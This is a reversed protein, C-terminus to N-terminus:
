RPCNNITVYKEVHLGLLGTGTIMAMVVFRSTCITSNCLDRMYLEHVCILLM